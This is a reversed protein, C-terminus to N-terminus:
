RSVGSGTAEYGRRWVPATGQGGARQLSREVHRQLSQLLMGYQRTMAESVVRLLRDHSKLLAVLKPVRVGVSLMEVDADDCTRELEDLVVRRLGGASELARLEGEIMSLLSLAEELEYGSLKNTVMVRLERVSNWMETTAESVRAWVGLTDCIRELRERKSGEVRPASGSSDGGYLPAGLSACALIVVIVSYWWLCSGRMAVGWSERWVRMVM